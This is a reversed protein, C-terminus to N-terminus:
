LRQWPSRTTYNGRSHNRWSSRAFRARSHSSEKARGSTLVLDPGIATYTMSSRSTIPAVQATSAPFGLTEGATEPCLHVSHSYCYPSHRPLHGGHGEDDGSARHTPLTCCPQDHRRGQSDDLAEAHLGARRRSATSGGEGDAAQAVATRLARLLEGNDARIQMLRLKRLDARIHLIINVHQNSM